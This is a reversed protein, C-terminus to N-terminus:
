VYTAGARGTWTTNIAVKGSYPNTTLDYKTINWGTSGEATGVPASGVYYIPSQLDYRTTATADNTKIGGFADIQVKDMTNTTPNYAALGVMLLKFVEDFSWNLVYQETQNTTEPKNNRDVAAM